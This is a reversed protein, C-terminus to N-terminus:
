KRLKLSVGRLEAMENFATVASKADTVREMVARVDDLELLNIATCYFSKRRGDDYNKLLEQLIGIKENLEAKYAEIGIEKAKVANTLINKHTIFSDREGEGAYKKCPYEDCEFCYELGKRLCCSLMDCSCHSENFGEGACGPCRSTGVTYYRPCLGCNLGCAAFKPYSRTKYTM